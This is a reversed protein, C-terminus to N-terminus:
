CDSKVRDRVSVKDRISFEERSSLAAPFEARFQFQTYVSKLSALM